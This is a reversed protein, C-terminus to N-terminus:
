SESKLLVSAAGTSVLQHAIAASKCFALTVELASLTGAAISDVLATSDKSVIRSEAESLFGGAFKGTLDRQEKAKELNPPSLLWEPPIPQIGVRWM